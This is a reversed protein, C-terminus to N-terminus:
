ESIFLVILKVKKGKECDHGEWGETCNCSYSGNTNLCTANNFCPQFRTCEDVDVFIIFLDIWLLSKMKIQFVVLKDRHTLILFFSM